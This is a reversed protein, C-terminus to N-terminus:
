IILIYFWDNIKKEKRIKDPRLEETDKLRSHVHKITIRAVANSQYDPM